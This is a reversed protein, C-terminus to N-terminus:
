LLLSPSLSGPVMKSPCVMVGLINDMANGRSSFIPRAAEVPSVTNVRIKKAALDLAMGKVMGSIAGKTASYPSGAIYSTFIGSISSIFVISSDKNILKKKVIQTTILVPAFFNVSFIDNLNEKNVFQFPKYETVGASHVIGDLVPLAAILSDVEQQNYMDAIIQQHGEGELLNFTDNLRSENRGRNIM